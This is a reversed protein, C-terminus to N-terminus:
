NRKHCPVIKNNKNNRKKLEGKQKTNLNITNVFVIQREVVFRNLNLVNQVFGFGFFGTSM